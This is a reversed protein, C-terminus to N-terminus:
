RGVSGTIWWLKNKCTFAEATAALHPNFQNSELSLHIFTVRKQWGLPAFLEFNLDAGLRQCVVILGAKKNWKILGELIAIATAGSYAQIVVREIHDPINQCQAIISQHGETCDFDRPMFQFGTIKSDNMAADTARYWEPHVIIDAGNAKGELEPLCEAITHIRCPIGMGEATAAVVPGQPSYPIHCTTLGSKGQALLMCIRAKTGTYGPVFRFLNDRKLCMGNDELVPTLEHPNLIFENM